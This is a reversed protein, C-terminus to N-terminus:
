RVVVQHNASLFLSDAELKVLERARGVRVDNRLDYEFFLVEDVREVGEVAELLQYVAAANLDSEFPWGGGDVGGTLPNLFQYLASLVRERVLAAPRGPRATVMSAITVGQYYPTGIEITSGLIRREDLFTSVNEIMRVPLAFDDLELDESAKDIDPVILLRVPGGSRDPPLCRVRAISPDAQVALREFDPATVARAGARLAQPARRKANEIDEADVGGTAAVVNEVRAIYPISTRLGTLTGPGVNGADGGGYRYRHAIIRAGEPPVAGRQRYTGDPYRIRPGFTIEGSASSWTYHRDTPGTEVFDPVEQWSEEGDATVVRIGEGEVRPLVPFREVRFTQSPRGNSVGLLEDSRVASHEAPITGGVVSVSLSRIQPSARYFPQDPEPVTLRARIWHGRQGSLTVPEHAAPMLLVLIGNRNLGGTTDVHVRVPLWNEGDWAEWALPPRDPLVGIGEVNATIELRVARRALSDEFRLYMADGSQLPLRPFCVVSSQDIRLDDWVDTYVEGHTLAGSLEPQRIYLDDLTSFVRPEGVEGTTAVETGKPVVVVDDTRASLWFTLDTRAATAPFPEFGVLNLMHTFFLDPVQNLRFITMETMWAFLEILAVGPDSVNHNTWEPCYLPIMRKAEDVLDQFRRDDLNPVPLSM